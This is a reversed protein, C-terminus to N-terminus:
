VNNSTKLASTRLNFPNPKSGTPTKSESTISSGDTNASKFIKKDNPLSVSTRDPESSPKRKHISIAEYDEIITTLQLMNDIKIPDSEKTKKVYVLRNHSYVNHLLGKKRLQLASKFCESNMPTLSENIYVRMDTEFGLHSLSLKKFKLYCIYFENKALFSQLIGIKWISDFSPYSPTIKQWLASQLAFKTTTIWWTKVM